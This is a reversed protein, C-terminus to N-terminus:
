NRSRAYDIAGANSPFLVSDSLLFFFSVPGPNRGGFCGGGRGKRRRKGIRIPFKRSDDRLDLTFTFDLAVVPTEASESERARIM